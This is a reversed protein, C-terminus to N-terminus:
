QRSLSKAGRNGLFPQQAFWVSSESQSPPEHISPHISQYLNRQYNNFVCISCEMRQGTKRISTIGPSLSSGPLLLRTSGSGSRTPPKSTQKESARKSPLHPSCPKPGDSHHSAHRPDVHSDPPLNSVSEFEQKLDARFWKALALVVEHLLSWQCSRGDGLVKPCSNLCFEGFLKWSAILKWSHGLYNWAISMSGHLDLCLCVAPNFCRPWYRRSLDASTPGLSRQTALYTAKTQTSRIRKLHWSIMKTHQCFDHKTHKSLSTTSFNHIKM